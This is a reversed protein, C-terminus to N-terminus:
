GRGRIGMRIPYLYMDMVEAKHDLLLIRLYAKSEGPSGLLQGPQHCIDLVNVALRVVADAEFASRM